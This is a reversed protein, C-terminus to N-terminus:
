TPQAAEDVLALLRRREEPDRIRQYARLLTLCESTIDNSSATGVTDSANYLVSLPIQLAGAIRQLTRSAASGNLPAPRGSSHDELPMIQASKDPPPTKSGM